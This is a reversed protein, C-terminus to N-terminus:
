CIIILGRMKDTTTGFRRNEKLVKKSLNEFIYVRFLSHTHTDFPPLPIPSVWM